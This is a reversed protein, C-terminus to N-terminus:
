ARIYCPAILTWSFVYFCTYSCWLTMLFSTFSTVCTYCPAMWYFVYIIHLSCVLPSDTSFFFSFFSSTLSAICSYRPRPDDTKFFLRLHHFANTCLPWRNGLFSMFSTVCSYWPSDTKLFLCLHHLARIGHAIRKWSFVYIIYHVFVIPWQNGVFSMFLTVCSYWPSDTKLFSM